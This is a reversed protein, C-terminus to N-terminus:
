LVGVLALIVLVVLVILLVHLVSAQGHEVRPPPSTLASAGTENDISYAALGKLLSALATGASIGLAYRWDVETLIDGVAFTALTGAFTAIVREALDRLFARTFM